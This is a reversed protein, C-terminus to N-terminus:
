GDTDFVTDTTGDFDVSVVGGDNVVVGDQMTGIGTSDTVVGTLVVPVSYLGLDSVM